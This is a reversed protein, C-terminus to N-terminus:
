CVEKVRGRSFMRQLAGMEGGVHQEDAYPTPKQGSLVDAPATNPEVGLFTMERLENLAKGEEMIKLQASEVGEADAKANAVFVAKVALGEVDFRKGLKQFFAE